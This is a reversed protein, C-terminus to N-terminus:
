FLEMRDPFEFPDRKQVGDPPAGIATIEEILSQLLKCAEVPDQAPPMNM